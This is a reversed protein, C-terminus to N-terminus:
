IFHTLDYSEFKLIKFHTIKPSDGTSPVKVIEKQPVPIDESKLTLFYEDSNSIRLSALSQSGPKTYVLLLDNYYNNRTLILTEENISDSFTINLKNDEKNVKHFKSESLSFDNLVKNQDELVLTEGKKAKTLDAVLIRGPKSKIRKFIQEMSRIDLLPSVFISAFSVIDAVSDLHQEIDTQSLRRLSGNPNTLFFREGEHDVLVINIGTALGEEVVINDTSLGNQKIYDLVREGAEDRGVKSIFQVDKGLRSLVVSENLGDGGFSLKTTDVPQSGTEFVKESVPGALIDIIAAGIVTIDM